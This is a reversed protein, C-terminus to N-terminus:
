VRRGAMKRWGEIDQPRPTEGPEGYHKEKWRKRMTEDSEGNALDGIFRGAGEGVRM